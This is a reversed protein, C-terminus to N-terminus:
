AHAPARSSLSTVSARPHGLITGFPGPPVFRGGLGGLGALRTTAITVGIRDTGRDPREGPM